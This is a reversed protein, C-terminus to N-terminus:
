ATAFSLEALTSTGDLKLRCGWNGPPFGLPYEVYAWEVWRANLIQSITSELFEDGFYLFAISVNKGAGDSIRASCFIEEAGTITKGSHDTTCVYKDDVLQADPRPCVRFETVTMPPPAPPPSPPPAPPPGGGTRKVVECDRAVRDGSDARVTDRGAGCFIRDAGAGGVLLDNGGLGYLRDNGANGYIKDAKATGRLVDARASGKITKASAAPTLLGAVAVLALALMGTWVRGSGM